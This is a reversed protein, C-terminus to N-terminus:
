YVNDPLEESKARPLMIKFCTKYGESPHIVTIEGNLEEIIKETISLGLGMGRGYKNESSYAESPVETTFLPTFIKGWNSEPIGDGNDEFMITLYNSDSIVNFLLKGSNRGARDIAKCSNTFLNILVSMIESIHLPKTWLDWDDYKVVLEYGRRQITPEMASFFQDAIERIEYHKKERNSNSRITGDFFDTYADLMGVCRELDDSLYKIPPLNASFYKLEQSALKLNSLYLQIEHTFESIALGISALVRYMMQEDIFEKITSDFVSLKELLVTPEPISNGADFKFSTQKEDEAISEVPTDQDGIANVLKTAEKKVEMFDEQVREVLPKTRSFGKQSSTIKKGRVSAVHSAIKIVLNRTLETLNFFEESEIVGERASTEDFISTQDDIHVEGCFNTNSHPPLIVRRRSSEDLALWDNLREGYPAVNFLNRFLRIGGNERLFAQLYRVNKAGQEQAFYSGSLTYSVTELVPNYYEPLDFEGSLKPNSVGEIILSVTGNKVEAVFRVDAAALFVDKPSLKLDSSLGLADTYTFNVDFGPDNRKSDPTIKLINSLYNFTTEINSISWAERTGELILKTGHSFNEVNKIYEVKSPIASIIRNSEFNNWDIEVRLCDIDQERKTIIILKEAIKQASFRGIGKRGAKYRTYKNSYPKEVKDSTSITMFGKVLEERSMGLGDDQIVITGGVSETNIFEVQVNEADADYANKILETLATTRKSVLQEGLREVIKADVSFRVNDTDQKSLETALELVQGYDIKENHRDLIHTLRDRLDLEKNM